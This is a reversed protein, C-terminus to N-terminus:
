CFPLITTKCLSSPAAGCPRPVHIHRTFGGAFVQRNLINTSELRTIFARNFLDTKSWALAGRWSSVGGQEGLWGMSAMEVFCLFLAAKEVGIISKRGLLKAQAARVPSASGLM